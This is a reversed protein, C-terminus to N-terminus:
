ALDLIRPPRDHRSALRAPLLSQAKDTFPVGDADLRPCGVAISVASKTVVGGSPATPVGSDGCPASNLQCPSAHAGDLEAPPVPPAPQRIQSQRPGCCCSEGRCSAGCKCNHRVGDIEGASLVSSATVGQVSVLAALVVALLTWRCLAHIPISRNASRM